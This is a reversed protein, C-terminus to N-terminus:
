LRRLEKAKARAEIADTDTEGLGIVPDSGSFDLLRADLLERDDNGMVVHRAGFHDDHVGTETCWDPHVACLQGDNKLATFDM